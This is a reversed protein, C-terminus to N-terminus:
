GEEGEAVLEIAGAPCLDVADEAEGKREEPVPTLVVEPYGDPGERFLNPHGYTCQGSKLCAGRDVVLKM